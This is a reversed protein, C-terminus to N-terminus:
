SVRGYGPSDPTMINITRYLVDRGASPADIIKGDGVYLAVHGGGRYFVLDGPQLQSKDSFMRVAGKQAAANHPLSKGAAAWAAMTLGSCDYSDPGADGFGYPKGVQKFAFAVAKGASGAIQPIKGTYSGTDETASGYLDERMDYLKQLDKKIKTKQADLEKVQLQQKQETTKLAAQKQAFTETTETYADIDAQNARTIQELYGMRDLLEGQKGSLLVTMPGVRGTIYQSTAITSMKASAKTLAEQAPKLSATLKVADAKTKKLDLRTKNYTETVDELKESAQDIQKKLESESPAAHAAVAGSTTIALATLAVVLARLKTRPHPM